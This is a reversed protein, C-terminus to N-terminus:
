GGDENLSYAVTMQKNRHRSLQGPLPERRTSALYEFFVALLLNM